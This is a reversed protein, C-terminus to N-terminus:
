IGSYLQTSVETGHSVTKEFVGHLCVAFALGLSPPALHTQSSQTSFLHLGPAAARQWGCSKTNLGRLKSLPHALARTANM